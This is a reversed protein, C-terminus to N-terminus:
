DSFTIMTISNYGNCFSQQAFFVLLLLDIIIDFDAIAHIYGNVSLVTLIKYSRNRYCFVHYRIRFHLRSAKVPVWYLTCLAQVSHCFEREHEFHM